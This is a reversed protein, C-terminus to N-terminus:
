NAKSKGKKRSNGKKSSNGKKWNRPLMKEGLSQITNVM